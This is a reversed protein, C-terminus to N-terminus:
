IYESETRVEIHDPLMKRLLSAREDPSVEYTKNKNHGVVCIVTAHKKALFQLMARHGYHPPNFSGALIVTDRNQNKPSKWPYTHITPFALPWLLLGIPYIVLIIALGLQWSVLMDVILSM